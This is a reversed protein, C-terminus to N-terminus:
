RGHCIPVKSLKFGAGWLERADRESIGLVRDVIETKCGTICFHVGAICCRSLCVCSGILLGLQVRGIVLKWPGALFPGVFVVRGKCRLGLRGFCEGTIVAGDIGVVVVRTLWALEVMIAADNVGLAEWWWLWNSMAAVAMTLGHLVATDAM